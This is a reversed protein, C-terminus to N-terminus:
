GGATARLWAMSGSRRVEASAGFVGRAAAVLDDTSHPPGVEGARRLVRMYARGVRRDTVLMSAFLRGGPALQERLASLVAWPDDLVHLMAFCGVTEFQGPAFPLDMLDAQVLVAPAGGDLRESARSLMGLSRDVAVIPRTADRYRDATFVMTGCGGDLFAGEGAALAEAAFARYEAPRTGWLLRNYVRTGILGDYIAAHRDYPAGEDTASLASLLNPGAPRLIRGPALMSDPAGGAEM